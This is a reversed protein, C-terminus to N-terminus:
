DFLTLQDVDGLEARLFELEAQQEKAYAMRVENHRGYRHHRYIDNELFEIKSCLFKRMNERISKDSMGRLKWYYRYEHYNVICEYRRPGTHVAKGGGPMINTLRRLGIRAILTTEYDLAAREDYSRFVIAKKIQGGQKWVKRITHCKHCAHGKKAEQEHQHVRPGCGKGVYFIRDSPTSLTYVYWQGDPDYYAEGTHRREWEEKWALSRARAAEAEREAKREDATAIAGDLSSLIQSILLRKVSSMLVRSRNMQIRDKDHGFNWCRLQGALVMTKIDKTQCGLAFAADRFTLLATGYPDQVFLMGSM